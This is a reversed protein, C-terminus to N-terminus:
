VFVPVNLKGPFMFAHLYFIGNDKTKIGKVTKSVFLSVILMTKFEFLM